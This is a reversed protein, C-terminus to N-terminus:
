WPRVWSTRCNARCRNWRTRPGASSGTTMAAIAQRSVAQAPVMLLGAVVSAVLLIGYPLTPVAPWFVVQTLVTVLLVVRLGRSDIMRGLLPGGLAM